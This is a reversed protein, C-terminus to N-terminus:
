QTRLLHRANHMYLCDEGGPFQLHLSIHSMDGSICRSGYAATKEEKYLIKQSVFLTEANSYM